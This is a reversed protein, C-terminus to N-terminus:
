VDDSDKFKDLKKMEKYMDERSDKTTDQINVIESDIYEADNDERAAQNYYYAITVNIGGTSGPFYQTQYDTRLIMAYCDAAPVKGKLTKSLKFAM